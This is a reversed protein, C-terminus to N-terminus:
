ARGRWLTLVRQSAIHDYVFVLELRIVKRRKFIYVQAEELDVVQVDEPLKWVELDNRQGVVLHARELVEGVAGFQLLNVDPLVINAVQLFDAMQCSQWIQAYKPERVVRTGVM